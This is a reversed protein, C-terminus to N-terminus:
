GCVVCVNQVAVNVAGRQAVFGKQGVRLLEREPLELVTQNEIEEPTLPKKEESLLKQKKDLM